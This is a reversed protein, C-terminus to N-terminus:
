TFMPNLSGLLENSKRMGVPKPEIVNDPAPALAQKAIEINDVISEIICVPVDGNANVLRQIKEERTEAM